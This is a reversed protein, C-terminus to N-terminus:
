NAETYQTMDASMMQQTPPSSTGSPTPHTHSNYVTAASENLLKMLNGASLKGIKVNEANINVTSNASIEINGNNTLKIFSGTQHVLWFEGADVALPRFSSNFTLLSVFGGQSSGESFHVACAAGITPPAFMGWNGGVWPSLLPLWGSLSTNPEMPDHPELIVKVYYNIPDFSSITGMRTYAVNSMAMRAHVRMQNLLKEIM